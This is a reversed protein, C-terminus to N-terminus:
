RDREAELRERHLEEANELPTEPVSFVQGPQIRDPNQIQSRNALYITTYRVGQGYTRRSIRWLTDGRRIIVAGPASALPAQEITRLGGDQADEAALAAEAPQSLATQARQLMERMAALDEASEEGDAGATGGSQIAEPAIVALAARAQARMARAIAKADAASEAPLGAMAAAKLKDVAARRAATVKATDPVDTGSVMAELAALAEFADERMQSLSAIDAVVLENVADGSAAPGTEDVAAAEAPTQSAAGNGATVRSTKGTTSPAPSVAALTEGEPRNFPVTARLLVTGTASDILDANVIHDGVSLEAEAEIIYRGNEDAKGTGILEGDASVKVTYGPTASGAIFIRGGEIEIADVRVTFDSVPEVGSAGSAVDPSVSAVETGAEEAESNELTDAPAAADVTESSESVAAVPRDSKEQAPDAAAKPTVEPASRTMLSSMEPLEPTTIESTAIEPAAGEEPAADEAEPAQMAVETEAVQEPASPQAIIRSAEGPRSVMALLEGDADKPVSVTAVEESERVTGDAGVIRLKLQYDGAALPTDLVAAFDGSPGVMTSAIVTEGDMIDLTTGPEAKGAIVTSGDPEVRLVDFRPIVWDSSLSAVETDGEASGENASDTDGGPSEAEPATSGAESEMEVVPESVSAERPEMLQPVVYVAGAAAAAFVLGFFAKLGAGLKLM